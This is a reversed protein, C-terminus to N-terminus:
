FHCHQFNHLFGSIANDCSEFLFGPRLGFVKYTNIICGNSTNIIFRFLNELAKDGLSEDKAANVTESLNEM